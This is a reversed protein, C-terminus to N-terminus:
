VRGLRHINTTIFEVYCKARDLYKALYRDCPKVLDACYKLEDAGSSEAFEDEWQVLCQREPGSGRYGRYEM